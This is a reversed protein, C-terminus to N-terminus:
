IERGCQFCIWQRECPQYAASGEIWDLPEKLPFKLLPGGFSQVLDCAASACGMKYHSQGRKGRQDGIHGGARGDNDSSSTTLAITNLCLVDNTPKYVRNM